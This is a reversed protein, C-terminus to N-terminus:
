PLFLSLSLPLYSLLIVEGWRGEVAESQRSDVTEQPAIPQMVLM